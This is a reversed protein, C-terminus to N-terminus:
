PLTILCRQRLFAVNIIHRTVLLVTILYHSILITLLWRHPRILAEMILPPDSILWILTYALEQLELSPFAEPLRSLHSYM